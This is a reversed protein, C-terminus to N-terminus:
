GKSAGSTIGEVYYKQLAMFLISIPISVLVCGAAFQTYYESIFERELMKALGIAVTYKDYNDGMIVSAFIYDVWPGMFSTLITTVAIPKSLPLIIKTFIQMKTAGEISAAEEMSKPITDFFGKAVFFGAGSAGSYVLILALLSQTIGIGKLIYYVAIMSMFGPFMGLIMAINMYPKRMKFRLRSMCFSVSLVFITSILCSFVAVTFTNGFWKAFHFQDTEFLLRRYNEVTYAKPFFYSTYSGREKRFSALVVWFIPFLWVVSLLVLCIHSLITKIRAKTRM